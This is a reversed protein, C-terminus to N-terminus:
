QSYKAKPLPDSDLVHDSFKGNGCKLTQVQTEFAPKLNIDKGHMKWNSSNNRSLFLESFPVLDQDCGKNATLEPIINSSFVVEKDERSMRAAKGFSSATFQGPLGIMSYDGGYIDQIQLDVNNHQGNTALHLLDDFGKAGTLLSGLGLFTGGGTRTGGLTIYQSESDVKVISVGTGITVLLYPFLSRSDVNQFTYIPKKLDDDKQFTFCENPINKLLFNCGRILCAMEDLKDVKVGLKSSFFNAYKFAGGGTIQMSEDETESRHDFINEQIFDVCTEISEFKIFHLKAVKEQEEQATSVPLKGVEDAPSISPGGRCYHRAGIRSAESLYAVKALSGGIDIAFKKANHLNEIIEAAPLEISEAYCHDLCNEKDFDTELSEKGNM